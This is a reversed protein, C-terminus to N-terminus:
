RFEKKDVSDKKKQIYRKKRLVKLMSKWFTDTKNFIFLCFSFGFFFYIYLINNEHFILYFSSSLSNEDSLIKALTRVMKEENRRILYLPFSCRSTTMGEKKDPFIARIGLFRFPHGRIKMGFQCQFM